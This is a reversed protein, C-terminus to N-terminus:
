GELAEAAELWALELEDREDDLGDLEEQLAALRAYDSAQAAMQAHVKEIRETVRRLQSELRALDKKAQRQEAAGTPQRVAAPAPRPPKREAVTARRHELYADVGGPLLM